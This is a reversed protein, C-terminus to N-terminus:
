FHFPVSQGNALLFSVYTAKAHSESHASDSKQSDKCFRHTNTRRDSCTLTFGESSLHFIYNTSHQPMWGGLSEKLEPYFIASGHDPTGQLQAVHRVSLDLKYTPDDNQFLGVIPQSHHSSSWQDVLSPFDLHCVDHTCFALRDISLPIFTKDQVRFFIHKQGILTHRFEHALYLHRMASYTPPTPRPKEYPDDLEKWDYWNLAGMYIFDGHQKKLAYTHGKVLSKSTMKQSQKATFDVSDRYAQSNVPLLVLEAGAWAFVCSEAIDRKSIDSHAMIGILNDVSIEFEFDRPDHVRLVSRGSGWGSYNDRQIGKNFVFGNMPTNPLDMSGLDKDCWGSWSSEKRLKNKEDYYVIYALKGNFTDERNQFGIKITTPIFLNTKM